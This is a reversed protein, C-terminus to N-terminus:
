VYMSYVRIDCLKINQLEQKKENEETRFSQAVQNLRRM